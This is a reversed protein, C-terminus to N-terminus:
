RKDYPPLGKLQREADCEPCYCTEKSSVEFQRHPGALGAHNPGFCKWCQDEADWRMRLGCHKCVADLMRTSM